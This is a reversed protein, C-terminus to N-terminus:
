ANGAMKRVLAAADAYAKRRIADGALSKFQQGHAALAAAVENLITEREPREPKGSRPLCTRHWLQEVLHPYEPTGCHCQRFTYALRIIAVSSLDTDCGGCHMLTQHNANRPESAWTLVEGAPTVIRPRTTPAETM